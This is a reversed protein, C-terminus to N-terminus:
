LTSWVVTVTPAGLINDIDVIGPETVAEDEAQAEEEQEIAAAPSPHSRGGEASAQSNVAGTEQHASQSVAEETPLPPSINKEAAAGV